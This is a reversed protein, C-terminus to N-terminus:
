ISSAITFLILMGSTNSLIDPIQKISNIMELLLLLVFFTIGDTGGQQLDGVALTSYTQGWSGM